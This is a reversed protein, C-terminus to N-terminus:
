KESIEGVEDYLIQFLDVYHGISTRDLAKCIYEHLWGLLDM